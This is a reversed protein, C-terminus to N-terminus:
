LSKAVVTTKLFQKRLDNLNTEKIGEYKRKKEQAVDTWVVFQKAIEKEAVEKEEKLRSIAQDLKQIKKQLIKKPSEPNM